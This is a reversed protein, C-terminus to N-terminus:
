VRPSPAICPPHPPSAKQLAMCGLSRKPRRPSSAVNPCDWNQRDEEQPCAKRALIESGGWAISCRISCRRFVTEGQEMRCRVAPAGGSRVGHFLCAFSNWATGDEM